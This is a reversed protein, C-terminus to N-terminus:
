EDLYYIPGAYLLEALANYWDSCCDIRWCSMSFDPSLGSTLHFASFMLSKNLRRTTPDFEVLINVGEVFFHCFPHKPHVMQTAAPWRLSARLHSIRHLENSFALVALENWAEHWLRSTSEESASGVNQLV